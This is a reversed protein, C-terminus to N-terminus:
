RMREVVIKRQRLKDRALPTFRVEPGLRVIRTGGPLNAAKRESLFGGTIEIIGAGPSADRMSQEPQGGSTQHGSNNLRFVHEGRIIRDRMQRNACLKAVHCAFAQLEANTTIRVPEGAPEVAQEQKGAAIGGTKRLRALEEALVERILSRVADGTM